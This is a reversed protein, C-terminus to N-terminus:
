LFYTVIFLVPSLHCIVSSLDLGTGSEVSCVDSELEGSLRSVRDRGEKGEEVGEEVGEGWVWGVM